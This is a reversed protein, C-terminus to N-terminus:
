RPIPILKTELIQRVSDTPCVWDGFKDKFCAFNEQVVQREISDRYAGCQIYKTKVPYIMAGTPAGDHLRHAGTGPDVYIRNVFSKGLQFELFTIGVKLPNTTGGEKVDLAFWDYIVRKFLQASAPATKSVKTGPPDFSCESLNPEPTANTITVNATAADDNGQRSTDLKTLPRNVTTRMHDTMIATSRIDYKGTRVDYFYVMCTSANFCKDVKAIVWEDIWKVEIIDGEKYNLQQAKVFHRGFPLPLFFTLLLLFTLSRNNTQKLM